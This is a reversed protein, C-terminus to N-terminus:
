LANDAQEALCLADIHMGIGSCIVLVSVIHWVFLIPFSLRLSVKARRKHPNEPLAWKSSVFGQIAVEFSTAEVREPCARTVALPNQAAPQVQGQKATRKGLLESEIRRDM